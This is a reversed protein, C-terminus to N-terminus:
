RAHGTILNNGGEPSAQATNNGVFNKLKDDDGVMTSSGTLTNSAGCSMLLFLLLLLVSIILRQNMFKLLIDSYKIKERCNALM